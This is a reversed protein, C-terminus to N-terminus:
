IAELFWQEKTKKCIVTQGVYPAMIIAKGSLQECNNCQIAICEIKEKLYKITETYTQNEVYEMDMETKSKWCVSLMGELHHIALENCTMAILHTFCLTNEKNLTGGPKYEFYKVINYVIEEPTQEWNIKSM